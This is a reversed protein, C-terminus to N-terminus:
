SWKLTCLGKGLTEDGGFQLVKPLATTVWSFVEDATTPKDNRRAASAMVISYFLSEPPLLEQYFLAGNKVTKKEYDLGIRAVIETAYRVFHTFDDDSVIAFHSEIRRKTAEDDTARAAIHTAVDKAGDETVFDYEELLMKRDKIVLEQSSVLAGGNRVPAAPLTLDDHGALRLDRKFRELVAPCTVWAFVGKLSRVPFALLRADTLAVAGAHKAADSTEPGFAVEVSVKGEAGRRRCADRFVGKVSSAPILPWQTHRERQVPLDVVGLATGAGPHLATQAHLFVVGSKTM